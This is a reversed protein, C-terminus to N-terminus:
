KEINKISKLAGYYITQTKSNNYTCTILTIMQNYNEKLYLVGTKDQYEIEHIEYIYKKGKYYINVLDGQKLKYLYKFYAKVGNGSHGLLIINSIDNNLLTSNAHLMINRDVNNELSKLHYIEKKLNIKEIELIMFYNNNNIKEEVRKNDYYVEVKIKSYKFIPFVLALLLLLFGFIKVIRIM